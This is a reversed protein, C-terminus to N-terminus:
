PKLTEINESVKRSARSARSARGAFGARGARGAPGAPGARGARGTCGAVHLMCGIEVFNATPLWCLLLFEFRSSQVKFRSGQVKVKFWYGAVHLM